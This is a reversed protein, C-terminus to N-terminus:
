YLKILFNAEHLTRDIASRSENLRSGLHTHTRNCVEFLWSKLCPISRTKVLRGIIEFYSMCKPVHDVKNKM